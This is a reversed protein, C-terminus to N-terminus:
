NHILRMSVFSVNANKNEPFGKAFSHSLCRAMLVSISFMIQNEWIFDAWLFSTSQNTAKMWNSYQPFQVRFTPANGNCQIFALFLCLMDSESLCLCRCCCFFFLLLLIDLHRYSRSRLSHTRSLAFAREFSFGHWVMQSNPHMSNKMPYISLSKYLQSALICHTGYYKDCVNWIWWNEIRMRDWKSPQNATLTPKHM